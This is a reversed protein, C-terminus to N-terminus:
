SEATLQAMPAIEKAGLQLKGGRIRGLFLSNFCIERIERIIRSKVFQEGCAAIAQAYCIRTMRLVHHKM